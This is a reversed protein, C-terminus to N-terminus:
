RVIAGFRDLLKEVARKRSVRVVDDAVVETRSQTIGGARFFRRNVHGTVVVEDGVSCDAARDLLSVPVSVAVADDGCKTTIDLQTVTSGSPLSRTRPESTVRGRLIAANNSYM